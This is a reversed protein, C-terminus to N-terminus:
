SLKTPISKSSYALTGLGLWKELASKTIGILSTSNRIYGYGAISSFNSENTATATMQISEKTRNCDIVELAKDSTDAIDASAAHDAKKASNAPGGASDSGAYNHTHGALAFKVKCTAWVTTLGKEDLLKM